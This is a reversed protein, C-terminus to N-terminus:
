KSILHNNKFLIFSVLGLVFMTQSVKVLTGISPAYSYSKPYEFPKPPVSISDPEKQWIQGEELNGTVHLVQRAARKGASIAGDMYGSWEIATETGAYYIRGFPERIYKGFKTLAHPPHTTTYCGGSYQENSWDFIEVRKYTMFEELKTVDAYCRAVARSLEADTMEMTEYRGPGAVFAIIAPFSGDPKTEDLSMIVPQAKRDVSDIYFTGSFNHERWFPKDYYLIVKAVHGMPSRQALLNKGAPQAPNHHIKLWLHPSIAYILYDAKFQMGDTTTVVVFPGKTQDVSCVAKNLLVRQRGVLDQLRESMQQTGGKIKREQGGNTTAISRGYGGCQRVYWLFWLLSVENPDSCVDVVVYCNNFYSRVRKTWTNEDVFQKWTKSDWEKARPAKWPADLPIEAGYSDILRVMNVYDLWHFIGGFPPDDREPPFRDIVEINNQKSSGAKERVTSQRNARLYGIDMSDDVLYTELKLEDILNLVHNQTPGVYSGGLDIWLKHEGIGDRKTFTRGGVRDRAELVLVDLKYALLEKAATLGSIQINFNTNTLRKSQKSQQHIAELEPQHHILCFRWRSEAHM